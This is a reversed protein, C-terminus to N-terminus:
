ISFNDLLLLKGWNKSSIKPIFDILGSRDLNIVREGKFARKMGLFTESVDYFVDGIGNRYYETMDLNPAYNASAHNSMLQIRNKPSVSVNALGTNDIGLIFVEEYRSSLAFALAKFATLSPYSRPKLPSINRSFGQLSRDDFHLCERRECEKRTPIPHWSTPTVPKIQDLRVLYSWVAPSSSSFLNLNHDPDSMVVFDPILDGPLEMELFNNVCYVHLNGLEQQQKAFLVNLKGLSPGNGLILARKPVQSVLFNQTGQLSGKKWIERSSLLVFSVLVNLKILFLRILSFDPSSNPKFNESLNIFMKKM